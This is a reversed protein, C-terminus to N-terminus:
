LTFTKSGTYTSFGGTLIITYTGANATITTDVSFTGGGSGSPTMTIFSPLTSGSSTATYTWSIASCYVGTYTFDAFSFTDASTGITYTQPSTITSPTVAGAVATCAANM